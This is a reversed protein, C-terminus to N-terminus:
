IKVEKALSLAERKGVNLYASTATVSKQGLLQRVAEINGSYKYILAAKIWEKLSKQTEDSLAVLTGEGTKKQMVQFEERVVGNDFCVDAVKLNLLDCSRLMTDIAVSFLALDRLNGQNCMMIKLSKVQDPTFPKKQGVSKGKNWVRKSRLHVM